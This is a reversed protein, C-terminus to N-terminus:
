AACAPITMRASAVAASMRTSKVDPGFMLQATDITRCLPGARVNDIPIKLARIAAGIETAQKRGEASLNRQSSCSSGPSTDRDAQSFDTAAHRFHLTYGGVKLLNLLDRPSLDDGRAPAAGLLSLALLLAVLFRRQVRM